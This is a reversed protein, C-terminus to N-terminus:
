FKLTIGYRFKSNDKFFYKGYTYEGYVGLHKTLYFSGGVGLSYESETGGPYFSKPSTFTLGGYKGTLYLDFRFDNEKVFLPFLHLNCNIGYFIAPRETLTLISDRHGISNIKSYGLYVGTEIFKRIGYNAEIRFNGVQIRERYTRINTNYRSYSAKFNWRHKIYSDQGYSCIVILNSLIFIYLAKKM